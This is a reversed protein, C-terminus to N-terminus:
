LGLEKKAAETAVDTIVRITLKYADQGMKGLLRRVKAAALPTKPTDSSLERISEEIEQKEEDSLDDLLASLENVAELKAATWPYPEGCNECFQPPSYGLSIGETSSGRIPHECHQCATITAAGCKDCFNKAAGPVITLASTTPHGNICIQAVDYGDFPSGRTGWNLPDDTM